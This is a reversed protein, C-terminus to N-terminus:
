FAQLKLHKFKAIIEESNLKMWVELESLDAWWPNKGNCEASIQMRHTKVQQKTILYDIFADMSSKSGNGLIKFGVSQKWNTQLFKNLYDKWGARMVFIGTSTSLSKDYPKEAFKIVENTEKNIKALGVRYQMGDTILLSALQGHANHFQMLASLNANTLINGPYILIDQNPLIQLEEVAYRNKTKQVSINSFPTQQTLLRRLSNTQEIKEDGLWLFKNFNHFELHKTIWELVSINNDTRQDQVEKNGITWLGMHLYNFIPQLGQVLPFQIIVLTDEM